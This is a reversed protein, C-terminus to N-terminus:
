WVLVRAALWGGFGGVGGGVLDAVDGAEGGHRVQGGLEVLRRQLQVHKDVVRADHYVLPLLGHVAM